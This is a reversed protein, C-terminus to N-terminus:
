IKSRKKIIEDKLPINQELKILLLTKDMLDINEEGITNFLHNRCKITTSTKRVYYNISDVKYYTKEEIDCVIRGNKSMRLTIEDGIKLIKNLFLYNYLEKEYKKIRKEMM